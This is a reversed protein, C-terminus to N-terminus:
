KNIPQNDFSRVFSHQCFFIINWHRIYAIWIRCEKFWNHTFKITFCKAFNILITNLLKMFGCRYYGVKQIKTKKPKSKTQKNSNNFYITKQKKKESKVKRNTDLLVYFRSYQIYMYNNGWIGNYHTTLTVVSRYLGHHLSIFKYVQLSHIM